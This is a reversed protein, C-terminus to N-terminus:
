ELTRKYSKVKGDRVYYCKYYSEGNDSEVVCKDTSYHTKTSHCGSFLIVWLAMLIVIVIAVAKM